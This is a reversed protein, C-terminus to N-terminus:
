RRELGLLERATGGMILERDKDSFRHRKFFRQHASLADPLSVFPADSGFMWRRAGLKRMAFALDTEVSSGEWYPLSFSTELYVHPFADAILMADLVKAGGGHLLVVPCTVAEAVRVALNLNDYRYLDKTGYATCLCLFLGQREAERAVAIATEACDSRIRQLYPHLTVAAFGLRKAEAFSAAHNPADLDPLLAFSWRRRSLRVLAARDQERTLVGSDYIQVLTHGVDHGHGQHDLEACRGDLPEASLDFLTRESAVAVPHADMDVVWM